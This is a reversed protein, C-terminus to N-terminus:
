FPIYIIKIECESHFTRTQHHFIYSGIYQYKTEDHRSNKKTDTCVIEVVLIPESKFLGSVKRGNKIKM